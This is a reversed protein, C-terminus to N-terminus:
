KFWRAIFTIFTITITAWLLAVTNDVIIFGTLQGALWLVIANIVVIFLGLSIFILPFSIVKLVPKVILNLLGLVVGAILYGKIGGSVTFGDVWM